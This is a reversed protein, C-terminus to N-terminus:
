VSKFFPASFASKTISAAVSFMFILNSIKRVSSSIAGECQIKADLVDDIEIVLIAETVLLASLTIPMCKIFGTGTIFNTSIMLPYLVEASTVFVMVSNDLAMPLTGADLM